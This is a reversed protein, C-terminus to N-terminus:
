DMKELPGTVWVNFSNTGVNGYIIGMPVPAPLALLEAAAQSPQDVNPAPLETIHEEGPASLGAEIDMNHM